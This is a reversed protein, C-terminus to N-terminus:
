ALECCGDAFEVYILKCTLSCQYVSTTMTQIVILLGPFPKCQACVAEDCAGNLELLNPIIVIISNSRKVLPCKHVLPCELKNYM